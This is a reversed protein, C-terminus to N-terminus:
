EYSHGLSLHTSIMLAQDITWQWSKKFQCDRQSIVDAFLIPTLQTPKKKKFFINVDYVTYRMMKCPSLLRISLPRSFYVWKVHQINSDQVTAPTLSLAYMKIYFEYEVMFM